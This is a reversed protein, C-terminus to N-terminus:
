VLGEGDVLALITRPSIIHVQTPVIKSTELRHVAEGGLSSAKRDIGAANIGLDRHVPTPGLGKRTSLHSASRFCSNAEYTSAFFLTLANRNRHVQQESQDCLHAIGVRARLLDAAPEVNTKNIFVWIRGSWITWKTGQLGLAPTVTTPSPRAPSRNTRAAVTRLIVRSESWNLGGALSDSQVAIREVCFMRAAAFPTIPKPAPPPRATVSSVEPRIPREPALGCSNLTPPDIRGPPNIYLSNQLVSFSACQLFLLRDQKSKL